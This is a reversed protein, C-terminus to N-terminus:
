NMPIQSLGADAAMAIRLTGNNHTMAARYMINVQAQTLVYNFAQPGGRSVHRKGPWFEVLREGAGAVADRCSRIRRLSGYKEWYKEYHRDSITFRQVGPNVSVEPGHKHVLRIRGTPFYISGVKGGAISAYLIQSPTFDPHIPKEDGEPAGKVDVMVWKKLHHYLAVVVAARRLDAHGYQGGSEYFKRLYADFIGPNELYNGWVGNFDDPDAAEIADLHERFAMRTEIAIEDLETPDTGDLDTVTFARQVTPAPSRQANTQSQPDAEPSGLSSSSRDDHEIRRTARNGVRRQLALVAASRSSLADPHPLGSERIGSPERRATATAADSTSPARKKLVM